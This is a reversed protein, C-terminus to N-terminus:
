GLSPKCKADAQCVRPLAMGATDIGFQKAITYMQNQKVKVRADSGCYMSHIRDM